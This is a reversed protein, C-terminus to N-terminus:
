VRNAVSGDVSVVYVDILPETDKKLRVRLHDNKFVVEIDKGRTGAPVPVNVTVEALVQTWNYNV